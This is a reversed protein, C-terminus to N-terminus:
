CGKSRISLRAGRPTLASFFGAVGVTIVLLPAISFVTYYALAAGLRPAKDDSWDAGVL